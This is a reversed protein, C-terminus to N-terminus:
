SCLVTSNKAILEDQLVESERVTYVIGFLQALKYFGSKSLNQFTNLAPSSHLQM